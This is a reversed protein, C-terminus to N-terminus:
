THIMVYQRLPCLSHLRSKRETPRTPGPSPFPIFGIYIAPSRQRGSPVKLSAPWSRLSKRGRFQGSLGCSRGLSVGLAPVAQSRIITTLFLLMHTHTNELTRQFQYVIMGLNLCWRICVQVLGIRMQVLFGGRHWGVSTCLGNVELQGRSVESWGEGPEVASIQAPTREVRGCVSTPPTPM